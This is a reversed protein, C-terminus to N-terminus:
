FTENSNRTSGLEYKKNQHRSEFHKCTKKIADGVATDAAATAQQLVYAESAQLTRLNVMDQEECPDGVHIV